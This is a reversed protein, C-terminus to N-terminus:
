KCYDKMKRAGMHEAVKEKEEPNLYKDLDKLEHEEITKKGNVLRSVNTLIPEDLKLYEKEVKKVAKKM